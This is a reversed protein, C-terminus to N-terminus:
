RDDRDLRDRQVGFTQGGAAAGATMSFNGAGTSADTKTLADISIMKMSGYSGTATSFTVLDPDYVGSFKGDTITWETLRLPSGDFPCSPQALAGGADVRATSEPRPEPTPPTVEQRSPLSVQAAAPVAAVAGASAAVSWFWRRKLHRM